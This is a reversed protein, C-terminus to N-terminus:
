TIIGSSFVIFVALSLIFLTNFPFYNVKKKEIDQTISNKETNEIHEQIQEITYKNQM